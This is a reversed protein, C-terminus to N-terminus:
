RKVGGKGKLYMKALKKNSVFLNTNNERKIDMIFKKIESTAVRYGLTDLEEQINEALDNLWSM